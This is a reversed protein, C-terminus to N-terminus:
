SAPELNATNPGAQAGNVPKWFREEKVSWGRPILRSKVDAIMGPHGCAYALTTAPDLGHARVYDDLIENVRGGSGNWGDNCAAQPLGLTPTYHIRSSREAMEALEADYGLEYRCDSGQLVHFEFDDDTGRALYDRLISVFPAVGTGTSVMLHTRYARDLTLLGKARPRISVVDGEDMAHLVPTLAGLPPPVLKIFLEILPDEPASAISYAREIGSAGITSYQGPKFQYAGDPKLWVKWTAPTLDARDVINANLSASSRSYLASGGRAESPVRRGDFPTNGLTTGAGLFM